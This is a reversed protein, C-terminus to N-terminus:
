SSGPTPAAVALPVWSACPFSGLLVSHYERLPLGYREPNAELRETILKWEALTFPKAM